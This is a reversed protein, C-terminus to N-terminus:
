LRRAQGPPGLRPPECARRPHREPGDGTGAVTRSILTQASPALPTERSELNACAIGQQCLEIAALSGYAHVADVMRAHYPIDGEDWLRGEISPTFDTGHDISVEETSVVAWGGEAKTGRMAAMGRPLRDGMGNCHPVQYFRNRATVPGINVPEFLIDFIPDRGSM